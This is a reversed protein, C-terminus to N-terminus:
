RITPGASNEGTRPGAPLRGAAPGRGSVPADGGLHRGGRSPVAPLRDAAASPCLGSPVAAGPVQFVPVVHHFLRCGTRQLQPVSDERYRRVLSRFGVGSLHFVLVLSRFCLWLCVLGPIQFVRWAQFVCVLARFYAGSKLCAGPIQFMALPRFSLGSVCALGSVCVGPGQFMCWLSSFPALSRFCTCPLSTRVVVCSKTHKTHSISHFIM